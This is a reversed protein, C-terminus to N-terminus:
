FFRKKSFREVLRDFAYSPKVDLVYCALCFGIVLIIIGKM